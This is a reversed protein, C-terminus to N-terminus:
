IQPASKSLVIQGAAGCDMVRQAVNPRQGRCQSSQTHRFRSHGPRRVGMRLKLHPHTRLSEAMELACRVPRFPDDTFVLAMGDGTPLSILENCSSASKFEACDLVLQRLLEILARQRDIPEKSYGVIDMCLVFGMQYLVPQVTPMM